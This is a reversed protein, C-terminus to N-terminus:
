HIELCQVNKAPLSTVALPELRTKPILCLGTELLTLEGPVCVGRCSSCMCFTRLNWSDRCCASPFARRAALSSEADIDERAARRVARLYPLATALLAIGPRLNTPFLKSTVSGARLFHSLAIVSPSIGTDNVAPQPSALFHPAPHPAGYCSQFAPATHHATSPSCCCCHKWIQLSHKSKDM